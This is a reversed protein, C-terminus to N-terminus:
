RLGGSMRSCHDCTRKVNVERYERGWLHIGCLTSAGLFPIASSFHRIYGADSPVGVQYLHGGTLANKYVSVADKASLPVVETAKM